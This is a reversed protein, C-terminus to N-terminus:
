SFILAVNRKKVRRNVQHPDPLCWNEKGPPTDYGRPKHVCIMYSGCSPFPSDTKENHGECTEYLTALKPPFQCWNGEGPPAIIGPPRSQCTLGDECDPFAMGTNENHGECIQGLGALQPPFQCWNGQGPPAIIGQPKSQCTLGDECDPFAMGTNENHGECVQGLGALQSGGSNQFADLMESPPYWGAKCANNNIIPLEALTKLCICKFRGSQRGTQSLGIFNTDCGGSCQAVLSQDITNSKLGFGGSGDYAYCGKHGNSVQRELIIEL